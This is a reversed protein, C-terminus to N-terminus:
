TAADDVIRSLFMWFASGRCFGFVNTIIPESAIGGGLPGFPNGSRPLTDPVSAIPHHTQEITIKITHL